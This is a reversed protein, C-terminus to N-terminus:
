LYDFLNLQGSKDRTDKLKTFVDLAFGSAPAKRTGHNLFNGTGRLVGMFVQFSECNQLVSWINTLADLHPMIDDVKEDFTLQFVWVKLRLAGHKLGSMTAIFREEKTLSKAISAGADLLARVSNFEEPTPFHKELLHLQDMNMQDLDMSLISSKIIPAIPLQTLMIGIAKQRKDDLISRRAQQKTNSASPKDKNLFKQSTQPSAFAQEMVGPDIPADEIIDWIMKQRRTLPPLLLKDWHVNKMSVKPQILTLAIDPVAPVFM